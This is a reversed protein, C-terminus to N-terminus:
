SQRNTITKTGVPHTNTFKMVPTTRHIISQIVQRIERDILITCCKEIVITLTITVLSILYILKILTLQYVLTPVSSILYICLLILISRLLELNRKQNNTRNTSRILNKSEQRVRYYIYVYIFVIISVPVIYYAFVTYAVHVIHKFPVWCLVNPYFYIDQTILSPSTLM